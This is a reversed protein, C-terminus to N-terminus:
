DEDIKGKDEKLKPYIVTMWLAFAYLIIGEFALPPYIVALFFGFIGVIQLLFKFQVGSLNLINREM